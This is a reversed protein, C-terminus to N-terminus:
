NVQTTFEIRSLHGAGKDKHCVKRIKAFLWVYFHKNQKNM